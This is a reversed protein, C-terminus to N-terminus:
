INDTGQSVSNVVRAFLATEKGRKSSFAGAGM